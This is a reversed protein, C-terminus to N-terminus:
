KNTLSPDNMIHGPLNTTLRDSGGTNQPCAALTLLTEQDAMQSFATAFKQHVKVMFTFWDLPLGHGLGRWLTAELNNMEEMM